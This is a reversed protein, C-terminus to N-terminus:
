TAVIGTIENFCKKCCEVWDGTGDDYFSTPVNCCTSMGRLNRKSM